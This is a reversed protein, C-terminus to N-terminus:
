NKLFGLRKLRLIFQTVREESMVFSLGWAIYANLLKLYFGPKMRLGHKRAARLMVMKGKIAGRPSWSLGGVRAKTIIVDCFSADNDKLYRIVLEYDLGVFGFDEDLMGYRSFLERHHFVGQHHIHLNDIFLRERAQSWPRGRIAVVEGKNDLLKVKGYCILHKRAEARKLCDEINEFVNSDHLRDDAGLFLIWQGTVHDLAKNWAHALNRDPGSEWYAIHKQNKKIISITADTSAGDIIVLEKHPYTQMAFSDICGQLTHEVNKTAVVVSIKPSTKLTM